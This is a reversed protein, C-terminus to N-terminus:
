NSPRGGSDQGDDGPDRTKPVFFRIVANLALLLVAIGLIVVVTGLVSGYVTTSPDHQPAQEVSRQDIIKTM